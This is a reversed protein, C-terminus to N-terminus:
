FREWVKLAIRKAKRSIEEEDIGPIEMKQMLIRGGVITTDVPADIIGFLIHGPLNESTLPTPPFYDVMILDAAADKEIIGIQRDFLRSAILANNKFLITYAEEFASQSDKTEHKHILSFVRIEDTMRTNMGDTGLGVRIGRKLMELVPACGVANNMNSRPNHAVNTKTERLIKMDEQTVHVCHATISRSGLIGTECFREVVTKGYRRRADEIDSLAEACHVHFGTDYDQAAEICSRLTDDSLTFSAHLGFLGKLLSPKEKKCKDLFRVNEGIGAQSAGPGDRDSVEYCLVGRLGIKEFQGAIIDLSNMIACPSSHHDVITTVGSKVAQILPILASLSVAEEDLARDLRWWLRELIQPFTEPPKDKLAIGRAFTSYLHMHTNIFGPMLIKGNADLTEPDKYKKLIEKSSGFDKITDGVILIAGDDLIERGANMTLVTANHIIM